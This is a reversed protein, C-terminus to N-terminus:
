TFFSQIGKLEIKNEKGCKICKYEVDHTLTPTNEFFEAVKKFQSTSLNNLFAEVSERPEDKADYVGEDDFIQEICDIVLDFAGEHKQLHSEDYKEIDQIGPYRLVVGIDGDIMVTKDSSPEAMEIEELNISTPTSSGCEDDQCKLELDVVEGVSKARLALFLKEFDFVTFKSFDVKEFICAEMVDKLTRLIMKQDKSELAVMLLKEERVNYPRYEIETGTSPMITTYRSGKVIPLAM